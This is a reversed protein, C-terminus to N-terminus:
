LLRDLQSWVKEFALIYQDVLEEECTGFNPLQIISQQSKESVPLSPPITPSVSWYEKMKYVPQLHQLPYRENAVYAGEANLAEIIKEKPVGTKEKEYIVEFQYHVRKMHAPTVFPKIGKLKAIRETVRAVRRSIAENQLDLTQLRIRAIATSAPHIRYKYGLGTSNLAHAPHDNPVRGYHGLSCCRAYLDFDDTLLFGGEIAPLLKSGQMSFCGIDGWTGIKKGRIESGHAHSADEIVRLKHERAIAMIEEMECPMGWLHTVIIAKTRPTIKRRIDDPDINASEARIDAFVPVAGCPRTEMSTAWFTYSPTIVEDGPQLGIAHMASHIASTGNNSTLAYRSGFYSCLEKEFEVMESYLTFPNREFVHNAAAKEEASFIPWLWAKKEPDHILPKGGHLALIESKSPTMNTNSSPNLSPTTPPM